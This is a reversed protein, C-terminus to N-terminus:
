LTEEGWIKELGNEAQYLELVQIQHFLLLHLHIKGKAPMESHMLEIRAAGYAMDVVNQITLDATEIGLKDLAAIFM